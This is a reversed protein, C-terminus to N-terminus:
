FKFFTIERNMVKKGGFDEKHLSLISSNQMYDFLDGSIYWIKKKDCM